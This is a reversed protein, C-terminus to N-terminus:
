GQQELSRRDELAQIPNVDDPEASTAYAEAKSPYRDWPHDFIDRHDASSMIEHAGGGGPRFLWLFIPRIERIV